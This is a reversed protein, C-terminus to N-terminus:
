MEHIKKSKSFFLNANENDYFRHCLIAHITCLNNILVCNKYLCEYGDLNSPLTGKVENYPVQEQCVYVFKIKKPINIKAKRYLAIIISSEKRSLYGNKNPELQYQIISM